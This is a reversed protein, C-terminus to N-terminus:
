LSMGHEKHNRLMYMVFIQWSSWLEGTRYYIRAHTRRNGSRYVVYCDLVIGRIGKCICQMYVYRPGQPERVYIDVVIRTTEQCMRFMVIQWTGQPERVYVSCISRDHAMQSGLMYLVYLDVILGMTVQCIYQIFIQRSGHLDRVCMINLVVFLDVMLGMVGQCIQYIVIQWLGQSQWVYVSYTQNNRNLISAHVM